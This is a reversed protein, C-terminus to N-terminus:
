CVSEGMGRLLVNWDREKKREREVGRGDDGDCDEDEDCSCGPSRTSSLRSGCWGKDQNASIGLTFLPGALREM